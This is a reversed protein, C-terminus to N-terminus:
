LAEESSMAGMERFRVCWCIEEKALSEIALSGSRGRGDKWADGGSEGNGGDGGEKDDEADEEEEKELEWGVEM